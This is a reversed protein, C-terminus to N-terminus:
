EGLQGVCMFFLAVHQVSVEGVTACECCLVVQQVNV